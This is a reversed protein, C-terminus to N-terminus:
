DCLLCVKNNLNIKIGYKFVIGNFIKFQLVRLKERGEQDRSVSSHVLGGSDYEFCCCVM